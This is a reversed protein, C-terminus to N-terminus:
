PSGNLLAMLQGEFESVKSAVWPGLDRSNLLDYVWASCDDEIFSTKSEVGLIEMLGKIKKNVPTDKPRFDGKYHVLENRLSAIM